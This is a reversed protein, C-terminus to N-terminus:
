KSTTMMLESVFDKIESNQSLFEKPVVGAFEKFERIFHSQDYYGAKLGIRTLSLHRNLRLLNVARQFRIKRLFLGMPLGTTELFRQEVRRRTIGISSLISKFESTTPSNIINKAIASSIWDPKYGKLRELLYFELQQKIAIENNADLLKDRLRMKSDITGVHIIRDTFEQAPVNFLLNGMWPQFSVGICKTSKTFKLVFPKTFQGPYISDPQLFAQSEGLIIMEPANLLNFILEFSGFPFLLQSFPIDSKNIDFLWYNRVYPQLALSPIIKKFEM